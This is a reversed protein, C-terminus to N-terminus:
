ASTSLTTTANCPSNAPRPSPIQPNPIRLHSAPHQSACLVDKREHCYTHITRQPKQCWFSGSATSIVGTLSGQSSRRLARENVVLREGALKVASDLGLRCSGAPSACATRFPVVILTEETSRPDIQVTSRLIRVLGDKVVAQSNDAGWVLV